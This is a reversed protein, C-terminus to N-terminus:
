LVTVTATRTKGEYLEFVCGSKFRGWPGNPMLFRATAEFSRNLASTPVFELVVSWADSPWSKEEEAFKAVTSYNAGAPLTGMKEKSWVVNVKVPSNM